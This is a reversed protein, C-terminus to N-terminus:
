NEPMHTEIYVGFLQKAENTNQKKEAFRPIRRLLTPIHEGRDHALIWTLLEWTTIISCRFFTIRGQNDGM